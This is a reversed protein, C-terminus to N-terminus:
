SGAEADGLARIYAVVAAIQDDDLDNSPMDVDYGAVRTADPERIAETLYADDALATSGDALVVQSGYLGALPPGVGGEGNSGHCASCGNTRAVDRGHEAQPSLSASGSDAGCGALATVAVLPAVACAAGYWGRSM